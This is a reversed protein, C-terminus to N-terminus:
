GALGKHRYVSSQTESLSHFFLLGLATCYKRVALADAPTSQLATDRFEIANLVRNTDNPSISAKSDPYISVRHAARM